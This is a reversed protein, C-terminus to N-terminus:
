DAPQTHTTTVKKRCVVYDQYDKSYAMRNSVVQDFQGLLGIILEAGERLGHHGGDHGTVYDALASDKVFKTLLVSSSRCILVRAGCQRAVELDLVDDFFFLVEDPRCKHTECFSNFAQAKNKMKSYVGDFNERQALHVASPNNEGTIIASPPLSGNLRWLAYRLLNTGMSDVESFISGETGRKTGDNFVGDWDFLVAKVQRLKEAFVSPPSVFEGGGQEFLKLITDSM